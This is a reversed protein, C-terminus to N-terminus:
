DYSVTKESYSDPQDEISPPPLISKTKYEPSDTDIVPRLSAITALRETETREPYLNTITKSFEVPGDEEVVNEIFAARDGKPIDWYPSRCKACTRPKELKSPWQHDCRFCQIIKM